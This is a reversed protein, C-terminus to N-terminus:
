YPREYRKRQKLVTTEIGEIMLVLESWEIQCSNEGKSPSAPKFTGRELRKYYLVFGGPEWSLLKIRTKQRNLFVFVEGMVPLREFEQWVIGCLGDFCKRMDTPHRYLYYRLSSTLSFM